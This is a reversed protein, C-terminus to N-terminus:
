AGIVAVQETLAQYSDLNSRSGAIPVPEELKRPREYVLTIPEIVRHQPNSFFDAVAACTHMCQIVGPNRSTRVAINEFLGNLLQGSKVKFAPIM